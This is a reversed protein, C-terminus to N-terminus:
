VGPGVRGTVIHTFTPWLTYNRRLHRAQEYVPRSSNSRNNRDMDPVGPHRAQPEEQPCWVSRQTRATMCGGARCVAAATVALM